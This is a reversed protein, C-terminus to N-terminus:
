AGARAMPTGRDNARVGTWTELRDAFADADWNRVLARPLQFPDSRWDVLGGSGSCACAFGAERVLRVTELTYDARDGFPYAFRSVVSGTMAELSARSERIEHRQAALSLGALRSHTM